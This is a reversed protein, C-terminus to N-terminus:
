VGDAENKGLQSFRMEMASFAPHFRSLIEKVIDEAIKTQYTHSTLNRAKIMDMWADGDELLGNKFAQRTANKSGIVDVFGQAELYDKLVNWALEHTFEFAQILGQQELESLKRQKALGAAEALRAFARKFNDFRQQWRIDAKSM